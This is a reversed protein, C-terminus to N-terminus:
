FLQTGQDTVIIEPTGHTAIIEELFSLCEEARVQKEPRAFAYRTYADIATIIYKAGSTANSNIPGVIDMHLREFLRSIPIPHLRGPSSGKPEKHRQCTPCTKIYEKLDSSMGPWWFQCLKRATKRNGLHGGYVEDDHALQLLLHRQDNQVAVRLLGPQEGGQQIYHLLGDKLQFTNSLDNIKSIIIKLVPDAEQTERTVRKFAFLKLPQKELVARAMKDAKDNGPDDSHGRTHIWEVELGDKALALTQIIEENIIRKGRIERFGDTLWRDLWVTVANILYKSDSVVAIRKWGQRKALLCAQIAATVEGTQNSPNSTVKGSACLDPHEPLYIAWSARCHPKGNATSAGDTYIVADPPDSSLKLQGIHTRYSTQRLTFKPFSDPPLRLLLNEIRKPKEKQSFVKPLERCETAFSTLEDDIIPSFKDYALVLALLSREVSTYNRESTALTRSARDLLNVDFDTCVVEISDRLAILEITKPLDRSALKQPQANVLELRISDM